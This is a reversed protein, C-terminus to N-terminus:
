SKKLVDHMWHLESLSSYGNKDALICDLIPLGLLTGATVLRHIQTQEALSLIFDEELHLHIMVLCIANALLAKQFLEAPPTRFKNFPGEYIPLIATLVRDASLVLAFVAESEKEEMLPFIANYADEATKIRLNEVPISKLFVRRIDLVPINTTSKTEEM